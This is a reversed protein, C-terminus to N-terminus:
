GSENGAVVGSILKRFWRWGVFKGLRWLSKQLTLCLPVAVFGFKLDNFEGM